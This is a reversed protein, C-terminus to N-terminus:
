WIRTFREPRPLKGIQPEQDARISHSRKVYYSNLVLTDTRKEGAPWLVRYGKHLEGLTFEKKEYLAHRLIDNIERERDAGSIFAERRKGIINATHQSIKIFKDPHDIYYDLSAEYDGFKYGHKQFIADYFLTTDAKSRYQPHDHIWQDALFMDAYVEAMKKEPIIRNSRSCSCFALSVLITIYLCVRKM